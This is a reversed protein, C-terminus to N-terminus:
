IMLEKMINIKKGKNDKIEIIGTVFDSNYKFINILKDAEKNYCIDELGFLLQDDPEETQVPLKFQTINSVSIPKYKEPKFKELIYLLERNEKYHYKSFIMCNDFLEFYEFLNFTIYFLFSHILDVNFLIEPEHNSLFLKLFNNIDNYSTTNLM